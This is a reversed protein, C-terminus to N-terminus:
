KKLQKARERWVAALTPNKPVGWGNEYCAALDACCSHDNQKAGLTYWKVAIEYNRQVGMGYMYFVGMRHQCWANGQKAGMEYWYAAKVYDVPIGEGMECCYGRRYCEWSDTVEFTEQKPTKKEQTVSTTSTKTTGTCARVAALVKQVEPSTEELETVSIIQQDNLYLRMSNNLIINELKIPIITKGETVALNTEKKVWVSDQAKATLILVLCACNTLADCIVDAYECGAPIDYPAMWSSIGHKRFLLRVADATNQNASSYSIFAYGM